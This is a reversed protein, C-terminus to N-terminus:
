IKRRRHIEPYKDDYLRRVDGLVEWSSRKSASFWLIHCMGFFRAFRRFSNYQSKRTRNQPIHWIMVIRGYQSSRGFCYLKRRSKHANSSKLQVPLWEDKECGKPRILLDARSGEICKKWEFKTELFECVIWRSKAEM